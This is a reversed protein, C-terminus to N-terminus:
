LEERGVLVTNTVFDDKRASKEVLSDHLQNKKVISKQGSIPIIRNNKPVLNSQAEERERERELNSLKM